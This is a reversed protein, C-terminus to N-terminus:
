AMKQVNNCHQVWFTLTLAVPVMIQENSYLTIVQRDCADSNAFFTRCCFFQFCLHLNCLLAWLWFASVGCALQMFVPDLRWLMGHHDLTMIQFTLNYM